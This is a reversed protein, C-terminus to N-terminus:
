DVVPGHRYLSLTEVVATIPYIPIRGFFPKLEAIGANKLTPEASGIRRSIKLMVEFRERIIHTLKSEDDRLSIMYSYQPDEVPLGLMYTEIVTNIRTQPLRKIQHAIHPGLINFVISWEEVTLNFDLLLNWGKEHLSSLKAEAAQRTITIKGNQIDFNFVRSM